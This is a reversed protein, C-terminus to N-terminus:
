AKKTKRKINAELDVRGVKSSSKGKWHSLKHSFRLSLDTDKDKRKHNRVTNAWVTHTWNLMQQTVHASSIAATRCFKSTHSLTIWVSVLAYNEARAKGVDTLLM